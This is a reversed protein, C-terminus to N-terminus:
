TIIVNRTLFSNYEAYCVKLDSRSNTLFNLMQRCYSLEEVIIEQFHFPVQTNGTLGFGCLSWHFLKREIVVQNEKM